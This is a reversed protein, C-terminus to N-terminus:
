SHSLSVYDVSAIKQQAATLKQPAVPAADGSVTGGLTIAAVAIPLAVQRNMREELLRPNRRECVATTRTFM